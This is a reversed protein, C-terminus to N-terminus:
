NTKLLAQRYCQLLPAKLKFAADYASRRKNEMIPTHAHVSGQRLSDREGVTQREEERETERVANPRVQNTKSENGTESKRKRSLASRAVMTSHPSQVRFRRSGGRLSTLEIEAGM